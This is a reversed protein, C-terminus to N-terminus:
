LTNHENSRWDATAGGVPRARVSSRPSASWLDADACSQDGSLEWCCPCPDAEVPPLRRRNSTQSHCCARHAIASGTRSYSSRQPHLNEQPSQQQLYLGQLEDRVLWVTHKSHLYSYIKNKSSEKDHHVEWGILEMLHHVMCEGQVSCTNIPSDQFWAHFGFLRM